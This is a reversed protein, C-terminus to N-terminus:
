GRWVDLATEEAILDAKRARARKEALLAPAFAAKRKELDRRAAMANAQAEGLATEAEAMAAEAADRAAEAETVGQRIVSLDALMLEVRHRSQANGVFAGRAQGARAEADEKAALVAARADERAAAADRLAAETRAVQRLAKELRTESLAILRAATM